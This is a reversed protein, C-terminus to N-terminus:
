GGIKLKSSGNTIEGVLPPTLVLGFISCVTTLATLNAADTEPTIQVADGKRAAPQAGDHILEM